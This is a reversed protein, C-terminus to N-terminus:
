AGFLSRIDEASRVDAYCRALTRLSQRHADPDYATVGDACVIVQFGAEHADRASAEVCIHTLIGALIVTDSGAQRLQEPLASNGPYFASYGSKHVTWDVDRRRLGPDIQWGSGGDVMERRHRAIQEPGLLASTAAASRWASPPTPLVWVVKCDNGRATETLRNVADVVGSRGPLEALSPTVADIVIVASRSAEIQPFAHIQGRRSILKDSLQEDLWDTM